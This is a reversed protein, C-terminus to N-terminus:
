FDEESAEDDEYEEEGYDDEESDFEIVDDSMGSEYNMNRLMEMFEIQQKVEEVTTDVFSEKKMVIEIYKGRLKIDEAETKADEDIHDYALKALADDSYEYFVSMNSVKEGEYYYVMHTKNPAYEEEDFSAQEADLTIVYKTGDSVFYADSLGGGIGGPKVVFLVVLVVAVILAVVGCCIGIILGKNNKKANEAM